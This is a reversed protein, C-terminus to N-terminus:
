IHDAVVVHNDDVHALGPGPFVTLMMLRKSKIHEPHLVAHDGLM